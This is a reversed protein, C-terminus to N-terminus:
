TQMSKPADQLNLTGSQIIGGGRHRRTGLGDFRRQWLRSIILTM